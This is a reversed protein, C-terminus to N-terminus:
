LFVHYDTPTVWGAKYDPCVKRFVLSQWVAKFMKGVVGLKAPGCMLMM